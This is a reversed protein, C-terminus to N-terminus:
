RPKAVIAVETALYHREVSLLTGGLYEWRSIPPVLRLALLYLFLVAAPMGLMILLDALEPYQAPPLPPLLLPEGTGQTTLGALSWSPVYLRVRDVFVGVLAIGAAITTGAISDRIPNYLLLLFPVLFCLALAVLFLGFYPGFMYASLVWREQPIRGYWLPLLESWIFYFFFVSLVLLFKATEHFTDRGIYQRHGGFWRIAALALLTAAVGGLLGSVAHHLPVVASHWAPVLAVALDTVVLLHVFVYLAFYLAGLLMVGAYLVQWQKTSGRWGLSLGARTAGLDRKARLDPLSGAYVLLLGVLSLLVIAIGGWLVPSWGFWFSQHAPGLPLQWLLLIILPASVVGAIAFLDAARRLAIGWLGRARRTTFALVPAAQASSLLFAATAATYGWKAHPAPGGIALNILAVLGAVALVGLVMVAIWYGMGGPEIRRNLAPRVVDLSLYRADQQEILVQQKGTVPQQALDADAVGVV